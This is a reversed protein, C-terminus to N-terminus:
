VGLLITRIQAFFRYWAETPKIEAGCRTCKGLTSQPDPITLDAM